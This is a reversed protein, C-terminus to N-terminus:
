NKLNASPLLEETPKSLLFNKDCIKHTKVTYVITITKKKNMILPIRDFGGAFLGQVNAM